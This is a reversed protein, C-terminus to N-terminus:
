VGEKFFFRVMERSANPGRPDTYSGATHGGSWAHGIGQVTWQEIVPVGEVDTIIRRTYETGAESRGTTTQEQAWEIEAQAHEIIKSGNSPTVTFDESGHFVILRPTQSGGTRRPASRNSVGKMASLASALNTASGRPLGSHIGVASYLEPYAGGLIDAMAGGASLGAVFVQDRDISFEKILSETLGAIIEPEGRGRAQDNPEFWNWCRSSNATCPQIPYAVIMGREEAIENMGTGLAFDDADQTCGHLMIVLGRTPEGQSPIYLKYERKGSSTSFTRTSFEAGDAISPERFRVKSKPAHYSSGAVSPDRRFAKINSHLFPQPTPADEAQSGAAIGSGKSAKAAPKASNVTAILPALVEQFGNKQAAERNNLTDQILRVADTLKGSRTLRTAERLGSALNFRM